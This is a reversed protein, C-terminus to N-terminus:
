PSYVSGGACPGLIASIQPIVGSAHTNRLFVDCFAVLSSIGEQVRAGAGDNLGIIPVGADVALDMIKVMKKGYMESLSGGFVTFDQSFIFVKRGDIKGYGTIIGDGLVKKEEMGFDICRHVVFEDIEVFSDPDLLKEIRERATYKGQSRQRELRKEGGGLIAEERKKKLQEFKDNPM